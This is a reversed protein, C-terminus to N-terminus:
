QSLIVTFVKSYYFSLLSSSPCLCHSLPCPCSSSFISLAPCLHICFLSLCVSKLFMFFATFVLFLIFWYSYMKCSLYCSPIFLSWSSSPLSSSTFPCVFSTHIFLMGCLVLSLAVSSTGYQRKYGGIGREVCGEGKM